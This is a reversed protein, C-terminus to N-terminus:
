KFIYKIGVGLKWQWEGIESLPKYSQSANLGIGINRIYYEMEMKGLIGPSFGRKEKNLIDNNMKEYSLCGGAGLNLFFDKNPTNYIIKLKNYNFGWVHYATKTGSFEGQDYFLGYQNILGKKSTNSYLGEAGGGHETMFYGLEVIKSDYSHPNSNEKIYSQSKGLSYFTLFVTIITLYRM